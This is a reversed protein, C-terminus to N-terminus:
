KQTKSMLSEIVDWPLKVGTADAILAIALVAGAIAIVSFAWRNKAPYIAAIYLVTGFVALGIVIKLIIM